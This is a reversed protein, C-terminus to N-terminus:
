EAAGAGEAPATEAAPATVADEDEDDDDDAEDDEDAEDGSSAEKLAQYSVFANFIAAYGRIEDASFRMIGSTDAGDRYAAFVSAAADDAPLTAVAANLMARENEPLMEVLSPALAKVFSYVRYVGVLYPKKAGAEPLIRAFLTSVPLKSKVGPMAFSFSFPEAQASMKNADRALEKYKEMFKMPDLADVKEKGDANFYKVAAIVDLSLKFVTGNADSKFWDTNCGGDKFFGVAGKIAEVSKAANYGCGKAGALAYVSDAPAFGLADGALPTLGIKSVESGDVTKCKVWIDLGADGIRAGFRYDDVMGLVNILNDFAAKDNADAVATKKAEEMLSAICKIASKALSVRIFDGDMPAKADALCEAVARKAFEASTAAAAWKGDEAFAVFTEDVEIAGDKEELGPKSLLFDQKSKAPAYVVAADCGSSLEMPNKMTALKEGDAYLVVIANEGERLAGLTEVVPNDVLAMSAMTGLMPYGVLEGAKAASKVLANMEPIQISAVKETAAAANLGVAMAAIVALTNKNM